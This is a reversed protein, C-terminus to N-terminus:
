WPAHRIARRSSRQALRSRKAGFPERRAVIAKGSKPISAWIVLFLKQTVLSHTVAQGFEERALRFSAVLRLFTLASKGEVTRLRQVRREKKQVRFTAEVEDMARIALTHKENSKSNRECRPTPFEHCGDQAM